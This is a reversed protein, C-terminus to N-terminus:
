DTVGCPNDGNHFERVQLLELLGIARKSAYKIQPKGCVGRSPRQTFIDAPEHM